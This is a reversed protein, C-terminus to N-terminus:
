RLRARLSAVTESFEKLGASQEGNGELHYTFKKLSNDMGKEPTWHKNYHDTRERFERVRRHSTYNEEKINAHSGDHRELSAEYISRLQTRLKPYRKFIDQIEPASAISEM